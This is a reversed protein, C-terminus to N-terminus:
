LSVDPPLDRGAAEEKLRAIEAERELKDQELVSDVAPGPKRGHLIDWIEAVLMAAEPSVAALKRQYYGAAMVRKNVEFTREDALAFFKDLLKRLTMGKDLLDYDRKELTIEQSIQEGDASVKHIVIKNAM